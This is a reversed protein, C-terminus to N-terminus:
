RFVADLSLRLDGFLPSSVADGRDSVLLEPRGYGGDGARYVKITEAEPDVVWYEEVGKSEYLDRKLREDRGRTSPSLVEVVLDPAGRVWDQLIGRRDNSVFLLDPEVVDIDSLIVDLPAFYLEGLAQDRVVPGLELFLNRLVDQHRRVPSATVYHEGDILEHRKGDDPFLLFDAHTLKKASTAM